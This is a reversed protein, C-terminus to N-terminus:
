IDGYHAKGPLNLIENFVIPENKLKQRYVELLDNREKNVDPEETATKKCSYFIATSIMVVM